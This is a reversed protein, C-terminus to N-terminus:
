LESIVFRELHKSANKRHLPHRRFTQVGHRLVSSLSMLRVVTLVYFQKYIVEKNLSSCVFGYSKLQELRPLWIIMDARFFFGIIKM